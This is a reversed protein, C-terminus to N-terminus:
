LLADDGLSLFDRCCPEYYKVTGEKVPLGVYSAYGFADTQKSRLYEVSEICDGEETNLEMVLAVFWPCCPALTDFVFDAAVRAQDKARKSQLEFKVDLFDTRIEAAYESDSEYSIDRGLSAQSPCTPETM